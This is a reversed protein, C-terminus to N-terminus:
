LTEAARALHRRNRDVKPHQGSGRSLAANGKQPMAPKDGSIMEVLLSEDPKGPVVAPGSDGGKFAGSATALSLNGKRTSDGHCHVCRRELIPAIRQTFYQDDASSASPAAAISIALGLIKIAKLMKAM